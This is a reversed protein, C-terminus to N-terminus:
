WTWGDKLSDNIVADHPWEGRYLMAINQAAEIAMDYQAQAEDGARHPSCVINELTFLPNDPSTPEEEFVDLGAGFLHGSQLADYLASEVVMGGRATNILVSGSKMKAFVEKNFMGKTEDNLPCHITLFDSQALLADFDVLEINHQQVFEENPYSETAIVAMGMGIARLAMSRGIRGLGLIGLTRGRVPRAAQHRWQGARQRKDCLVVSKAVALLLAMAQEAVAEHNATPTITVVIGRETAVPIDVRDFGVGMRSIVRLQPCGALVGASLNDGGALIAAAGELEAITEDDPRGLTFEPDDPYKIDLGASRLIETQPGENRVISTPTILVTAM